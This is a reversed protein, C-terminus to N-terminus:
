PSQLLWEQNNGGNSPWQIIKAGATTSNGTVDMLQSSNANPITLYTGYTAGSVANFSWQQNISVNTNYLGLEALQIGYGSGGNNATVNLRYYAYAISNTFSYTNTQTRNAFIQATQTDLTVWTTGNSSGQFQWAAPDRQQVDSASTMQYQNVVQSSPLQYQVWGTGGNVPDYWKTGLNNDFAQPAGQGNAANDASASATGGTALDVTATFTNQNLVTGQTLSAGPVELAKGSNMNLMRYHGNGLSEVRWLQDNPSTYPEQVISTGNATSAGSVDAVQGSNKNVIKYTTNFVPWNGGGTVTMSVLMDNFNISPSTLDFVGKNALTGTLTVSSGTYNDGAYLTATWGIPVKVSSVPGSGYIRMGASNLAANTYNGPALNTYYTGSLYDEYIRVGTPAPEGALPTLPVQGTTDVRNFFSPSASNCAPFKLDSSLKTYPLSLGKIDHYIHYVLDSELNDYPTRNDGSMKCHFGGDAATFPLPAVDWNMDFKAQSEFAKALLNNSIQFLDLGQNWAMYAEEAFTGLNGSAHGVDRQTEYNQGNSNIYENLGYSFSGNHQFSSVGFNYIDPRDCYIGLAFLGKIQLGGAGAAQLVNASISGGPSLCSPYLYTLLWNQLNTNMSPTWSSGGTARLIEGANAFDFIATGATLYDTQDFNTMTNVWGNIITIANTLYATNGTMYWMIANWNAVQADNRIEFQGHNYTEYTFPGQGTNTSQAYGSASFYAYAAAYPQVTINNKMRNLDALTHSVGPHTFVQAGALALTAASLNTTNISYHAVNADVAGNIKVYGNAVLSSFYGSGLTASSLNLVISGTSASTFNIYSSSTNTASAKLTAGFILPDTAAGLVTFRGANGVTITGTGGGGFPTGLYVGVSSNFAGTTFSGNSISLAGTSTDRGLLTGNLVMVYGGNIALTASRYNGNGIWISETGGDNFFAGKFNLTGQTVNVTENAGQGLWSLGNFNGGSTGFTTTTIPAYNLAVSTSTWLGDNNTAGLTPVYSSAWNSAVNPDSSTSGTWSYQAHATSLIGFAFINVAAIVYCRFPRSSM